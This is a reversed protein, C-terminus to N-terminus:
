SDCRVNYMLRFVFEGEVAEELSWAKGMSRSVRSRESLVRVVRGKWEFCLAVSRSTVRAASFRISAFNSAKSLEKPLSVSSSGKPDEEFVVEPVEEPVEECFPELVQLFSSKHYPLALHTRGYCTWPFDSIPNGLVSTIVERLCFEVVALHYGM